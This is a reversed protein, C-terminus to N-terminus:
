IKVVLRKKRRRRIAGGSKWEKRVGGLWVRLVAV